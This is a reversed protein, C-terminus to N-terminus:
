FDVQCSNGHMDIGSANGSLDSFVDTLGPIREIERSFRPAVIKRRELVYMCLMDLTMDSTM